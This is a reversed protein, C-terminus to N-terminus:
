FFFFFLLGLYWSLIAVNVSCKFKCCFNFIFLVFVSVWIMSEVSLCVSYFILIFGLYLSSIVLEVKWFLVKVGYRGWGGFFCILDGLKRRLHMLASCFFDWIGVLEFYGFLFSATPDLGLDSFGLYLATSPFFACM